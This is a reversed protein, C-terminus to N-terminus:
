GEELRATAAAVGAGPTVPHGLASLTRELYLLDQLIDAEGVAGMTGIRVVRGNLKNRAGAIATNYREYMHRVIAGGDLGDPVCFVGVTDSIIPSATFLPLGLAATGRRLADALTRHRTLVAPLGEDAIMRTAEQLGYVLSVAPTFPTQGKTASERAKRFDWYFRPTAQASEIVNWAKPGVSAFALGPPCMLAKQSASILVDVGWADQQMEIGGLGSVSDVVLLAPTKAVAAGIRALDAVAGTSSENHVVVVARFDDAQLHQALM